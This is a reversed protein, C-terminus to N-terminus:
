ADYDRTTLNKNYNEPDRGKVIERFADRYSARITGWKSESKTSARTLRCQQCNCQRIKKVRSSTEM